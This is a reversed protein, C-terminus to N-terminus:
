SDCHLEETKQQLLWQVWGIRCSLSSLRGELVRCDGAGTTIGGTTHHRYYQWRHRCDGTGTTTTTSGSGQSPLQRQSPLGMCWSTNFIVDITSFKMSCCNVVVKLYAALTLMSWALISSFIRHQMLFHKKENYFHPWEQRFLVILGLRGLNSRGRIWMSTSFICWFTWTPLSRSILSQLRETVRPSFVSRGPTALNSLISLEAYTSRFLYLVSSGRSRRM